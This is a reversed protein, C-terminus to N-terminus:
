YLPAMTNVADVVAPALREAGAETLHIGDDQRVRQRDGAADVLHTAYAGKEDSLLPRSDLYRARPVKAVEEAYIRDIQAMDADFREKRMVPQGIWLVGGGDATLQRLLAAVRERYTALWRETGFNEARGDILFPQADNAGMMIVVLEVDAAATAERLHAPWDFFDPRALGSSVKYDVEARTVGTPELERLVAAGVADMTSDGVLLIRLPDTPTPRRLMTPSPGPNPPASSPGAGSGGTASTPPPAAPTLPAPPGQPEAGALPGAAPRDTSGGLGAPDLGLLGSGTGAGTGPSSSGPAPPPATTPSGEGQDAAPGAPPPTLGAVLETGGDGDGDGDGDGPDGGDGGGLRRLADLGDRPGTLGIRSSIQQVPRWFGVALDRGPGLPRAEASHLMADSNLGAALLLTAVMVALVQGAPAVDRRRRDAPDAARLRHPPEPEADLDAPRSAAAPDDADTM